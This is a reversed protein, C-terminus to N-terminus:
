EVEGNEDRMAFCGEATKLRERVYDLLWDAQELAKAASAIELTCGPPVDTGQKGIEILHSRLASFELQMDVCSGHAVECIMYLSKHEEKYNIEKM